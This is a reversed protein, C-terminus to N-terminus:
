IHRVDQTLLPVFPISFLGNESYRVSLRLMWRMVEISSVITEEGKAIDGSSLRVRLICFQM